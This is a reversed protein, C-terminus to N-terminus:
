QEGGEEGEPTIRTSEILEEARSLADNLLTTDPPAKAFKVQDAARDGEAAWTVFGGLQSTDETVTYRYKSGNPAYIPLGIFEFVHDVTVM